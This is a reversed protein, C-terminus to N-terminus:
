ESGEGYASEIQENCDACIMTNDEWNVDSAVLIHETDDENWTRYDDKNACKSCVVSDDAAMYFIPYGGPWACADHKGQNNPPLQKLM